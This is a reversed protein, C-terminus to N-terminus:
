WYSPASVSASRVGTRVRAAAPASTRRSVFAAPESRGSTPGPLRMAIASWMLRVPSLTSAPGFSSLMPGRKGLM